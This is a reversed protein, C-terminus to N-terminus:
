KKIKKKMKNYKQLQCEKKLGFKVGVHCTVPHGINKKKLYNKTKLNSVVM